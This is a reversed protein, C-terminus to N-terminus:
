YPAPGQFCRHSETCAMGARIMTRARDIDACAVGREFLMTVYPMPELNGTQELYSALTRWGRADEEQEGLPVGNWTIRAPKGEIRIKIILPPEIPM